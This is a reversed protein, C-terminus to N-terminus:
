PGLRESRAPHLGGQAPTTQPRPGPRCRCSALTRSCRAMDEEPCQASSCCAPAQARATRDWRAAPSTRGSRPTCAFLLRRTRGTRDTKPPDRRHFSPFRAAVDRPRFLHLHEAQVAVLLADPQRDALGLSPDDEVVGLLLVLFHEALHDAADRADPDLMRELVVARLLGAGHAREAVLGPIAVIMRADHVVST